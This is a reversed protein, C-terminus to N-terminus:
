LRATVPAPCIVAKRVSADDPAAYAQGIRPMRATLPIVRQNLRWDYIVSFALIRSVYERTERYPITEIFFDPELASRAALWRNVPTQGANYAASALWPSGQYKNAMQGLFRTGLQINLAPDFLDQAKSYPLKHMKAVEAAVGPLLQMLGYANAHSRADSMWASEARIIAYAWAPDIGADKASRTVRAKLGLPFRQEYVRLSDADASLLFVARDYWHAQYARLAALRREPADLKTMAFDWERRASALDGLAHFEFARALDAQEAIRGVTADDGTLTEPCIAYPQNLWDAALFGHFNAEDALASFLPQAEADRELKSLMRARLYRWRPDIKQSDALDDLAALTEKWDQTELAVRVHWERSSDDKAAEPLANLRSLADSSYSTSRFVALANLVRNKQEADWQFRPELAAWRVEAAGSNSRAYRALGLAIAQRNRATDPWSEAKALNSAPDRVAAAIREGAPRDEGNLMSAVASAANPNGAAASAELRAWIDAEPLAGSKAVWDFLPQCLTPSIRPQMWLPQIDRAYDPKEGAALRARQWACQLDTATSAQWLARFGDWDAKGALERLQNDRLSRAVLTDPWRKLFALVEERPVIKNSRKLAALELYPLLPYDAFEMRARLSDAPPGREVSELASRWRERQQSYDASFAPGCCLMALMGILLFRSLLGPSPHRTDLIQM